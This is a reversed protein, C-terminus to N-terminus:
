IDNCQGSVKVRETISRSALSAKPSVCSSMFNTELLM